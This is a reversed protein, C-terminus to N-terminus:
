LIEKTTNTALETQLPSEAEEATMPAKAGTDISSFGYHCIILTTLSVIMMSILTLLSVRFSFYNLLLFGLASSGAHFIKFNAFADSPRMQGFFTGLIAGLEISLIANSMGVGTALALFIYINQQDLPPKWITLLLAYLATPLLLSWICVPLRRCLRDSLKGFAIARITNVINAVAFVFYKGTKDKILPPLGAYLFSQQVGYYVM